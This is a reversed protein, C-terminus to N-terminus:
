CARKQSRSRRRLAAVGALALGVVWGSRAGRGTTSCSDCGGSAGGGDDSAVGGGGASPAGGTGGAGDAVVSGGAGGGGGEVPAGGGAGGGGTGADCTGTTCSGDTCASDCCIGEVCYGSVCASSAECMDGLELPGLLRRARIRGCRYGDEPLERRYFILTGDDSFSASGSEAESIEFPAGAVLQADIEVGVLAGEQTFAGMFGAGHAVLDMPHGTPLIPSPADQVSGDAALRVGLPPNRDYVLLRTGSSHALMVGADQLAPYAALAVVTNTPSVTGDLALRNAYLNTIGSPDPTSFWSFAYAAGDFVMSAPKYGYRNYDFNVGDGIANGDADILGVFVQTDLDVDGPPTIFHQLFAYDVGDSALAVPPLPALNANPAVIEVRSGLVGGAGIRQFYPIPDPDDPNGDYSILFDSGNSALRPKRGDAIKFAETQLPNGDADFRAGYIADTSARSDVWVVLTVGAANTASQPERQDNASTTLNLSVPSSQSTVVGSSDVRSANVTGNNVHVFLAAGPGGAGSVDTQEEVTLQIPSADIPAWASSYRMVRAQNAVYDTYGFYQTGGVAVVDSPCHAFTLQPGFANGATDFRKGVCDGSWTGGVMLFDTGNTAVSGGGQWDPIPYTDLLSGDEDIRSHAAAPPSFLDCSVMYVGGAYAVSTSLCNAGVSTPGNLVQGTSDLLVFTGNASVVLFGDMGRAVASVGVPINVDLTVAGTPDIRSLKPGNVTNAFVLFDAGDTEIASGLVGALAPGLVIDNADLVQGNVDIRRARFSEEGYFVSLYISGNFAVKPKSRPVEATQTLIPVDVEFEGSVTPAALAEGSLHPAGVVLGVFVVSAIRTGLPTSDM